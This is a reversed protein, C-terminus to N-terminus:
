RRRIEYFTKTNRKFGVGEYFKLTSENKSGTALMVKYCGADWAAGLATKLVTGGVGKKRYDPHTVVNEVVAFPRAGRALNPVIALVCSSVVKGGLDAVFVQTIQSGLLKSWQAAAAAYEPMPDDPNLHKYLELVGPM